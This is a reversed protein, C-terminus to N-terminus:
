PAPPRVVRQFVRMDGCQFGSYSPLHRGVVLDPEIAPYTTITDFAGGRDRFYDDDSYIVSMGPRIETPQVKWRIPALGNDAFNSASDGGNLATLYCHLNLTVPLVYGPYARDRVVYGQRGPDPVNEAITLLCESRKSYDVGSGYATATVALALLAGLVAVLSPVKGQCRPILMAAFPAMLWPFRRRLLHHDSAVAFAVVILVIGVTYRHRFLWARLGKTAAESRRWRLGVLVQIAFVSWLMHLPPVRDVYQGYTAGDFPIAFVRRFDVHFLSPYSQKETQEVPNEALLVFFVILLAGSVVLSLLIPWATRLRPGRLTLLVVVAAAGVVWMMAHCFYLLLLFVAAAGFWRSRMSKLGNETAWLLLVLIPLGSVVGVFGWGLVEGFLFLFSYVAFIPQRGTARLLLGTSLPVAAVFLAYTVRLAQYPDLFARFPLALVYILWYPSLPNLEYPSEAGGLQDFLSLVHAHCFLDVVPIFTPVVLALFALLALTSLVLWQWLPPKADPPQEDSM